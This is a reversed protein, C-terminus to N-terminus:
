RIILHIFATRGYDDVETYYQLKDGMLWKPKEGLVNYFEYKLTAFSTVKQTLSLDLTGYGARGEDLWPSAGVTELYKGRYNYRATLASKLFPTHWTMGANALIEPQYLMRDIRRTGSDSEVDMRGKMWTVNAFLDFKQGAFRIGKNEIRGEIGFIRSGSANLPQSIKYTTDDVTTYSTLDYIDDAIWKAFASVGFLGKSGNFGQTFTFDLNTARRPKLDPNGQSITCGEGGDDTEGCSVSRAQAVDGPTPRGITRSISGSVVSRKALKYEASLSPLAFDYGGRNRTMGDIAGDSVYPTDATFRTHDFRVGWVLALKDTRYHLAAYPTLTTENYRYDSILSDYTSNATDVTLDAMKDVFTDSIWPMPGIAGLATYDPTFLYNTMDMGTKYETEDLNRRLILNRWEAGVAFGMGRDDEDANWTYDVRANGMDERAVRFMDYATSLAYATKTPDLVSADSLSTIYPLNAIGGNSAYTLYASKPYARAVISYQHNDYLAKNYGGRIELVGQGAKWSLDGIVGFLGRNWNDHRYRTYISNIQQRGGDETQDYVASKTYYDQKNMTSDEYRRRGFGMISAYLSDDPSQWELKASGGYSRLTNTYSAYQQDYPVILGNWNPDEPGVLKKGADSFYYKTGQWFKASNRIRKQYEGSLVIGFQGGPGFRNSIVGKVGQGWHAGSGTIDNIHAPGRYTSYIGNLDIVKYVGDHDFASRTAVNVVGGIADGPLEPTFSKYVENGASMNSPLLQLNVQRSGDGDSGISAISLGDITTANLDASIGRISIFRPTDGEEIGTVGPLTVLQEVVSGDGGALTAVDDFRVTDVVATAKRTMRSQARKAEVVIASGHLPATDATNERHGLTIVTGDISIVELGTGRLLRGLAEDIDLNGKVANTRKGRTLQKEVLVQVGAQRAFSQIGSAAPQAPVDISATRAEVAM